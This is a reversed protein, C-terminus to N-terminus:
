SLLPPGRRSFNTQLLSAHGKCTPITKNTVIFISPTCFVFHPIIDRGTNHFTLSDFLQIENQTHSHFPEGEATREFLHVHYTLGGNITHIHSYFISIGVYGYFIAFLLVKLISSYWKKKM